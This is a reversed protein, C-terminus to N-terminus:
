YGLTLGKWPGFYQTTGYPSLEYGYGYSRYRMAASDGSMDYTGPWALSGTTVAYRPQVVIKTSRARVTRRVPPQQVVVPQATAVTPSTAFYTTGIVQGWQDMVVGSVPPGQTYGYGFGGFPLNEHGYGDNGYGYSGQGHYDTPFTQAHTTSNLGFSLGVVLILGFMRNM